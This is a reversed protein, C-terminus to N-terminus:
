EWWDEIVQTGRELMNQDVHQSNVGFGESLGIRCFSDGRDYVSTIFCKVDRTFNKNFGTGSLKIVGVHIDKIRKVKEWPM